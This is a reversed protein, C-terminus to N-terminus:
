CSWEKGGCAVQLPEPRQPLAHLWPAHCPRTGGLLRRVGRCESVPAGIERAYTQEVCRQDPGGGPCATSAAAASQRRPCGGPAAQLRLAQPGGQDQDRRVLAVPRLAAAATHRVLCATPLVPWCLPQPEHSEPWSGPGPDVAVLWPCAARYPHSSVVGAPVPGCVIQRSPQCAAVQHRAAAAPLAM